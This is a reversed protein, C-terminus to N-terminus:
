EDFGLDGGDQDQTVGAGEDGGGFPDFGGSLASGLLVGSLLDSGGWGSYYGQAWPSYAPGGEWYPVRRPGVLVTRVAPDSGALVRETDAACAPVSRPVGGPPAWEVDQVSPGHAPNFFCPGRRVPLPDGAIRAKVSAVAYRGDALIETVHRIEEPKRVATLSTKADEYSDLARRYDQQMGDDLAQGRVHADLRQLEEGFTTVDEEAAQKSAALQARRRGWRM